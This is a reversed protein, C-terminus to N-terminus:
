GAAAVARRRRGRGQESVVRRRRRRPRGSGTTPQSAPRPLRVGCRAAEVALAELHARAEILDTQLPRIEDIFSCRDRRGMAELGEISRQLDAARRLWYQARAELAEARARQPDHWAAEVFAARAPDTEESRRIPRRLPWSLTVPEDFASM